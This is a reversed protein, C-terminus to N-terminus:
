KADLREMAAQAKQDISNQYDHRRMSLCQQYYYRAKKDDKQEEYLLGMM